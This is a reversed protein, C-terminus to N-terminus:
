RTKPLRIILTFSPFAETLLTGGEKEVLLRLSLLGGSERVPERPAEGNSQLIYTIETDTHRIEATLEDGGAHKVTNSACEDIASALLSRYPEDAPIPGSILVDVGIVEATEMADTLPDRATDDEEYERLLYTNTYKLAQLLKEEDFSAPDNLYQRSELLVNGVESHVAMRATLLEQAIIIRDAQRNYIDLRMHLDRLKGNKEELERTIAAQETIDTAALQTYAAGDVQLKIEALQWITGDQLTVQASNQTSDAGGQLVANKFAALTDLDTGTLSRSLRNMTLNRFVVTGDPRGFAIGAPLMDMTEKISLATPHVKLYRIHERLEAAVILATLAEYLFLTWVPLATFPSRAAPLTFPLNARFYNSDIDMFTLWLCVFSFLSHLLQFLRIRGSRGDRISVLFMTMQLTLLLYLLTLLPQRLTSFLAEHITM